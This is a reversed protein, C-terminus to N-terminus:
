SSRGAAILQSFLFLASIIAICSFNFKTAQGVEFSHLNACWPDTRRSGMIAASIEKDNDCIETLLEKMGRDSEITSINIGYFNECSKVFDEIEQFPDSSRFYIVKLEDISDKLLESLIHLLM